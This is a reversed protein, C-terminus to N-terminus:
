NNKFFYRILKAINRAEKILLNPYIPLSLSSEAHMESIPFTNKKFGLRRYYPHLHVPLYHVNTIIGNKKLFKYLKLQLMNSNKKIIQITFLHFTSLSNSTVNPLKLPLNYLNKKYVQAIKNRKKIIFNIKKLQNIGIAAAIDTMRYNFGLFQQEYYWDKNKNLKNEFLSKDKTIGHTRFMKLKRDLMSNNTTAVGGEGTTITKVPHFSFITIDM